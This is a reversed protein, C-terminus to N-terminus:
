HLVQVDKQASVICHNPVDCLDDTRFPQARDISLNVIIVRARVRQSSSSCRHSRMSCALAQGVALTHDHRGGVGVAVIEFIKALPDANVGDMVM